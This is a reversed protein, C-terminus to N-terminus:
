GCSPKSGREATTFNLFKDMVQLNVSFVTQGDQLGLLGPKSQMWEVQRGVKCESMDISLHIEKHILFGCLLIAVLFHCLSHKM